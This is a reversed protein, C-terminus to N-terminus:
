KTAQNTWRRQLNDRLRKRMKETVHSYVGGIGPMHHGMRECKLVDEVHLEDLTTKHHHRLGHFVAGATVPSWSRHPDGDCAPRWLRRTFNSRRQWQGETTVFVQEHDHSDMVEALLTALFPSQRMKPPPPGTM